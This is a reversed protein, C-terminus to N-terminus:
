RIRYIIENSVFTGIPVNEVKVWAENENLCSNTESMWIIRARYAGEDLSSFEYPGWKLTFGSDSKGSNMRFLSLNQHPEVIEFSDCYVTDDFKRVSRTDFAIQVNGETDELEIRSPQLMITHLIQQRQGSQNLLMGEGNEALELRIVHQEAATVDTLRETMPENAEQRSNPQSCGIWVFLIYCVLRIM